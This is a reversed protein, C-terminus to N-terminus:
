YKVTGVKNGNSDRLSDPRSGSELKAALDKLIRAVELPCNDGAFADNNRSIRIVLDKKPPNTRYFKKGDTLLDSVKGKKDVCKGITEM